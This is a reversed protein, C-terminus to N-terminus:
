EYLIELHELSSNSLSVRWEGGWEFYRESNGSVGDARRGGGGGGGRYFTQNYVM